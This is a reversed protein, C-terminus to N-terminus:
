VQMMLFKGIRLMNYFSKKVTTNSLKLLVWPERTCSIKFYSVLRTGNRKWFVDIEYKFMIAM